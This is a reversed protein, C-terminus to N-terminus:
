CGALLLVTTDTRADECLPYALQVWPATTWQWGREEVTDQCALGGELACIWGAKMPGPDLQVPLNSVTEAHAATTAILTLYILYSIPSSM